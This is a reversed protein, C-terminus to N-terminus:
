KFVGKGRAYGIEEGIEQGRLVERFHLNAGTSNRPISRFRVTGVVVSMADNTADAAQSGYLHDVVEVTTTKSNMLIEEGASELAEWVTM